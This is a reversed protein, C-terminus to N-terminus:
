KLYEENNNDQVEGCLIAGMFLTEVDNDKKKGKKAWCDVSKQGRKGVSNSKESFCPNRAAKNDNRNYNKNSIVLCYSARHGYKGCENFRGKCLKINNNKWKTERYNLM